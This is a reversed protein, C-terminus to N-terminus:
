AGPREDGESEPQAGLAAFLAQALRDFRVEGEDEAAPHVGAWGAGRGSTLMTVDGGRVELIGAELEIFHEGAEDAYALPGAVTEALLPGHRPLIGIWGGDSLQVQLRLAQPVDLLTAAPTLVTLRM